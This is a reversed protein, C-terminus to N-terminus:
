ADSAGLLGERVLRMRESIVKPRIEVRETTDADLIVSYTIEGASVNNFTHDTEDYWLGLLMAAAQFEAITRDSKAM